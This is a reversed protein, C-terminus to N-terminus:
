NDTKWATYGGLMNYTKKFGLNKMLDLTKSSRGGSKCYVVYTSTKDLKELESKFNGNRYDLETAGTIKGDAIESPTRVDLFVVGPTDLKKKAETVSIDDSLVAVNSAQKCSSFLSISFCIVTLISLRYSM